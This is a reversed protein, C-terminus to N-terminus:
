TLQCPSCYSEWQKQAARDRWGAPPHCVRNLSAKEQARSVDDEDAITDVIDQRRQGPGLRRWRKRATRDTTLWSEELKFRRRM